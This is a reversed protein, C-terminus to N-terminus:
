YLSTFYGPFPLTKKRLVHHRSPDAGGLFSPGGIQPKGGGYLLKLWGLEKREWTGNIHCADYM